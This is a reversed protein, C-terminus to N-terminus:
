SVLAGDGLTSDVLDLLDEIDFPKHLFPVGQKPSCREIASMLIIKPAQGSKERHIYYVLQHGDVDPMTLDSIVLSPSERQLIHMAERGNCANCVRYGEDELLDSLFGVIQPEDDVVLITPRSAKRGSVHAIETSTTGGSLRAHLNM